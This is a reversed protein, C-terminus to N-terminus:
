YTFEMKRRRWKEKLDIKEMRFHVKYSKDNFSRLSVKAGFINYIHKTEHIFSTSKMKQGINKMEEKSCEYIHM